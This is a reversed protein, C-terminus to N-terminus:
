QYWITLLRLCHKGYGCVKLGEERLRVHNDQALLRRVLGAVADVTGQEDFNARLHTFCPKFVSLLRVLENVKGSNSSPAEKLLQIKAITADLAAFLLSIVMTSNAIFFSEETENRSEVFVALALVRTKAKLETNFFDRLRTKRFFGEGGFGM